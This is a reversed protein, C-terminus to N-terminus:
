FTFGLSVTFLGDERSLAYGATLIARQLPSIWLGGGYGFHWQTSNERNAWVRGEDVFGLVGMTAPLYYSDINFLKTRVETNHFLSTRGSFRDRVYGRLNGSTGTFTQGGLTNAQFFNFDGVNTAFGLRTALTTTIKRFTYYLSTKSSIRNFTKSRDNLGLKLESLLEFKYGYQPFLKNDVTTVKVGARAKAFHHSNFTTGPLQAEESTVFRNDISLPRLFEYGGGMRVQLLNNYLETLEINTDLNNYPYGYFDDDARTRETENGLGFFNSSYNPGRIGVQIGLDYRGVRETFLGEYNFTFSSTLTAMKGTIWHDSAFPEKRFGQRQIHVGGGVFVGDNENYGSAILPGLFDYQFGRKEYKNVRLNSSTKDKVEGMSSIRVSQPRDYVLTKKGWSAVKLQDEIVDDGEGSIIRIKIAKDTEGNMAFRDAGGFGYLRIEKTEDAQFVRHYIKQKRSGEARYVEVLTAGDSKRKIEFSENKDSGYVNVSRSLLDYYRRAFDPLQQRRAKLKEIFTAGNLGIIEEPWQSVASTIVSDSLAVQMEEAIAVWEKRTLGNMFWRDFHQANLNIGKINQIGDNFLQFKPFVTLRALGMIVGDSKYFANDRDIPIPQYAPLSDTETKAWFWQGEHRDWDGIYMDFIRSRVLQRQDITAWDGERLQNWLEDSDVVEAASKSFTQNFWNSSVFEEMTVLTGPTRQTNTSINLSSNDPIYRLEPTNQYIGAARALPPVILAGYPHSASTQDQAIKTVFTEQLAEPLSKKPNKQVSRMVYKRGTSDEAIITITQVGGTKALINLGGKEKELDLVPVDIPTTWADRYHDGWMFRKFGGAKYGPGPATTGMIDRQIHSQQNEHSSHNATGAPKSSAVLQRSYVLKGEKEQEDPIWFEIDVSGDVYSVLKTFGKQSYVFQAGFGRRAYSRKSGSGSVIFYNTGEKAINEKEKTYFSLNHEHGSALFNVEHDEIAELIEKKFLRYRKNSVDQGSAGLKRSLPYLSGLVPLPLYLQDVLNTLPFLHDKVSYYGGHNGNSYLPHHFALLMKKDSNEEVLHEVQDIVDTKTRASCDTLDNNAAESRNIWWESDLAIVFWDNGVSFGNPGPCGNDPLFQVKQNGYNEVFQEQAQVGQRGYRWDHNGPIFYAQGRYNTLMDLAPKMSAEARARAEHPEPPMGDPYINDGLFIVASSDGAAQLQVHLSSLVNLAGEKEPAGTDGVLFISSEVQKSAIASETPVYDSKYYPQSTGCSCLLLLCVMYFLYRGSRAEYKM